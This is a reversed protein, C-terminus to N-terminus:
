GEQQSGYNELIDLCIIASEIIQDELVGYQYNILGHKELYEDDLKLLDTCIKSIVEATMLQPQQLTIGAELLGRTLTMQKHMLALWANNFDDWLKSRVEEQATDDVTLEMDEVHSILWESFSSLLQGAVALRGDSINQFIQGLDASCRRYGHDITASIEPGGTSEQRTQPLGISGAPGPYIGSHIQNAMSETPYFPNTNSLVQGAASQQQNFQQSSEYMLGGLPQQGMGYTLNSDYSAYSTQQQRPEQAYETQYTMQDVSSVATFSPEHAAYFSYNSLANRQSSSGPGAVAPQRRRAALEDSFSRGSDQSPAFRDGSSAYQRPENQRRTPGHGDM